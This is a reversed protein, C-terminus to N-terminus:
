EGLSRLLNHVEQWYDIGEETKDWIFGDILLLSPRMESISIGSELKALISYSQEDICIHKEFQQCIPELVKGIGLTKIRENFRKVAEKNLREFDEATYESTSKSM